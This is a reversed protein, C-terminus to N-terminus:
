ENQKKELPTLNLYCLLMLADKLTHNSIFLFLFISFFITSAAHCHHLDEEVGISELVIAAVAGDGHALIKREAELSPMMVTLAM